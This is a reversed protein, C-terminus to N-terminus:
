KLGRSESFCIKGQGERGRPCLPWTLRDRWTLPSLDPPTALRPPYSLSLARQMGVVKMGGGLGGRKAKCTTM